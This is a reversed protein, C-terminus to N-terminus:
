RTPEKHIDPQGTLTLLVDDLDPTHVSLSEVEISERDFRALLEAARRRGLHRLDAMLLLNEEGTLLNDVATLQGTDGFSKRLGAAVIASRAASRAM